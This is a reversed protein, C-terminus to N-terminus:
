RSWSFPQSFHDTVIYLLTVNLRILDAAERRPDPMQRYSAVSHRWNTMSGTVRQWWFRKQPELHVFLRNRIFFADSWVRCFPLRAPKWILRKAAATIHYRIQLMNFLVFTSNPSTCESPKTCVTTKTVTRATYPTGVDKQKWFCRTSWVLHVYMELRYRVKQAVTQLVARGISDSQQRDQRDTQSTPASHGFPQISWSSVSFYLIVFSPMGTPRPGLCM